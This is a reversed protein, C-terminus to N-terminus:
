EDEAPIGDEEEAPTAPAPAAPAAAHLADEDSHDCPGGILQIMWAGFLADDDETSNNAIIRAGIEPNKALWARLSDGDANIDAVPPNAAETLINTLPTMDSADPNNNTLNTLLLLMNSARQARQRCCPRKQVAEAIRMTWKITNDMGADDGAPATSAHAAGVPAGDGAPATTMCLAPSSLLIISFFTIFKAIKM